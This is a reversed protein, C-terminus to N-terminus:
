RSAAGGRGFAPVNSSLIRMAVAVHSGLRIGGGREFQHMPHDSAPGGLLVPIDLRDLLEEIQIQMPEEILTRSSLVIGKSGSRKVVAPFVDLPVNAGLFLVRYGRALASISFLILGIDHYSGPLCACVIRAGTAQGTAHHFRAALRNRLWNAYFHEEAIGTDRSEWSSGLESLMPEILREAVMEVPYLSSAENYIAEVRETSFNGVARCTEALYDAWIGALETMGPENGALDRDQKLQTVATSLSHGEDLLELVYEVLEVDQETYLRHGKPTRQPSLLGYRREWARLTSGGVGTRESLVRIPFFHTSDQAVSKLLLSRKM